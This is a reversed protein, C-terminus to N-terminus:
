LAVSERGSIAPQHMSTNPSPTNAQQLILEDPNTNCCSCLRFFICKSEKHNCHIIKALEQLPLVPQTLRLLFFINKSSQFHALSHLNRSVPSYATYWSSPIKKEHSMVISQDWLYRRLLHEFIITGKSNMHFNIGAEGILVEKGLNKKM